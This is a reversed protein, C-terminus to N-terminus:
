YAGPRDDYVRREEVVAGPAARRHSMLLPVAILLGLAGAAMLIYGVTTLDLGSVTANVAFALVAGAALLLISVGIGM